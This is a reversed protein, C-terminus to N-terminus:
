AIKVGRARLYSKIAEKDPFYEEVLRLHEEILTPGRGTVRAMLNLPMDYLYLILVSNFLDLYRDVAAESHYTKRAIESTYLGQMHMNIVLHKHTLARGADKITGATPLIVQHEVMYNNVLKGVTSVSRYTIMQLDTLTLVAGQLYAEVCMRAIQEQHIRNVEQLTGPLRGIEERTQATLILPVQERYRTSMEERQRDTTAIGIWVVQGPRLESKLPCYLARQYALEEIVAKAREKSMRENVTMERMMHQYVEQPVQIEDKDLRRQSLQKAVTKPDVLPWNGVGHPVKQQRDGKGFVLGRINTLKRIDERTAESDYRQLARLRADELLISHKAWLGDEALSRCIDADLLPIIVENGKHLALMDGPKLRQIGHSIEHEEMRRNFEMILKRALWSEKGFDFRETLIHHQANEVTKEVISTYPNTRRKVAPDGGKMPTRFFGEEHRNQFSQRLHMLVLQADPLDKYRNYLALHHEILKKSRGMAKRIMSAPMGKDALVVVSAFTRLYNEISEYSHGTRQKIQSETYGDLYLEIIKEIHTLGAGIDAIQGRTPIVVNPNEKGLRHIVSSDVGLLFCLDAQTLLGGGKRAQTTYRMIREWELKRTQKGDYWSLEEQTYYDLTVPVLQCDAVAKGAPEETSIAFYVITNGARNNNFEEALFQDLKDIYDRAKAPSFGHDVELQKLFGQRSGTPGISGRPEDTFDWRVALKEYEEGLGPLANAGLSGPGNKAVYELDLRYQALENRTLCLRRRIESPKVGDALYELAKTSRYCRFGERWQKNMGGIPLRVGEEWMPVLRHRIADMQLGTLFSLRKMSFLADQRYAEEILRFIRANQMAKLGFEELLELDGYCFPTLVVKKLKETYKRSHSDRGAILEFEIEEFGRGKANYTLYQYAKIAVLEAEAVSLGYEDVTMGVLWNVPNKVAVTHVRDILNQRFVSKRGM